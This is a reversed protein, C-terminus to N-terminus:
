RDRRVLPCRGAGRLGRDASGIAPQSSAWPARASGPLQMLERLLTISQRASLGKAPLGFGIVAAVLLSPCSSSASMRKESTNSSRSVRLGGGPGHGGQVGLRAAPGGSQPSGPGVGTGSDGVPPGGPRGWITVPPRVFSGPNTSRRLPGQHWALVPGMRIAARGGVLRNRVASSRPDSTSRGVLNARIAPGLLGDRQSVSVPHSLSDRESYDVPPQSVPDLLLRGLEARSPPGGAGNARASRQRCPRDARDRPM